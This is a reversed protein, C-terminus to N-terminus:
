NTYESCINLHLVIKVVRNLVLRSIGKLSM